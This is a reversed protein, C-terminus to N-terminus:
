QAPPKTPTNNAFNLLPAIGPLPGSHAFELYQIESAQPKLEEALKKLSACNQAIDNSFFRKAPLLSGDKGSDASDGLYLTGAALYAASGDTHGPILYATVMVNGRQLVDGDQLYRAVHIGSNKKGMLFGIPSRAATRGELLSQEAAMAFVEADPFVACGAIHDPHAHTLLITKVAGRGLGVQKLADLIAKAKHDNGCDVLIVQGAASPIIGVSVMGDKVQEAGGSLPQRDKLPITGSFSYFILGFCVVVALAFALLVNRIIKV